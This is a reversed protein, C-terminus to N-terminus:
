PGSGFTRHAARRGRTGNSLQVTMGKAGTDQSVTAELHQGDCRKAQEVIGDYARKAQAPTAFIHMEQTVGDVASGDLSLYAMSALTKAGDGQVTVGGTITCLCPADPTGRDSRAVDFDHLVRNAAGLQKAEARTMMVSYATSVQASSLGAANAPPSGAFALAGVLISFVFLRRM